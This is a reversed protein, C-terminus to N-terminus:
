PFNLFTVLTLQWWGYFIYAVLKRGWKRIRMALMYAFSDQREIVGPCRTHLTVHDTKLVHFRLLCVYESRVKYYEYTNGGKIYGYHLLDFIKSLIQLFIWM